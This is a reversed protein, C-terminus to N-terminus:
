AMDSTGQGNLYKNALSAHSLYPHKHVCALSFVQLCTPLLAPITHTHPLTLPVLTAASIVLCGFGIVLVSAQRHRDSFNEM